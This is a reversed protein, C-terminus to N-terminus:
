PAGGEACRVELVEPHYDSPRMCSCAFRDYDSVAMHEVHYPACLRVCRAQAETVAKPDTCALLAAAAAVLAARM